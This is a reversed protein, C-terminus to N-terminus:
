SHKRSSQLPTDTRPGPAQIELPPPVGFQRQSKDQASEAYHQLPESELDFSENAMQWWVPTLSGGRGGGCYRLFVQTSTVLPADGSEDDDDEEEDDDNYVSGEGRRQQRAKFTALELEAQVCSGAKARRPPRPLPPFPPLPKVEALKRAVEGMAERAARAAAQEQVCLGKQQELAELQDSYRAMVEAKAQARAPNTV